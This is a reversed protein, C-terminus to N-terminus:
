GLLSADGRALTQVLEQHFYQSRHPVTSPVREEYMRRARDIEPGLRRRLDGDGRAERVAAENYLKIESVLLRAYRRASQVAEELGPPVSPLSGRGIWQRAQATRLATLYALHTAGHRAILELTEVRLEVRSGENEDQDHGALVGIPRGDILLPIAVSQGERVTATGGLARLALEVGSKNESTIRSTASVGAEWEDLEPGNSIFLAARPVAARAASLIASLAASVSTTTDIERFAPLLASQTKQSSRGLEARLRRTEEVLQRDGDIRVKTVEAAVRQEVDARAATLAAQLQQQGETRTKELLASWRADADAEGKRQAEAIAQAQHTAVVKLQAELEAQLSARVSDVLGSLHDEAM